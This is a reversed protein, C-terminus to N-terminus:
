ITELQAHETVVVEVKYTRGREPCNPTNCAAQGPVDDKMMRDCVPCIVIAFTKV